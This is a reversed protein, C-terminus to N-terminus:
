FHIEDVSIQPLHDLFIYNIQTRCFSTITLPENMTKISLNPLTRVTIIKSFFFTEMRKKESASPHTMIQAKILEVSICINITKKIKSIIYNCCVVDLLRENIKSNLIWSSYRVDYLGYLSMCKQMQHVSTDVSIFMQLVLYINSFVSPYDFFSLGSFSAVYLLCSSSFCFLFVVHIPCWQVYIFVFLTFLVILRHKM